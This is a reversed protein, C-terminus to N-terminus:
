WGYVLSSRAEDSNGKMAQEFITKIKYRDIIKVNEFAASIGRCDRPSFILSVVYPRRYKDQLFGFHDRVAKMFRIKKEDPISTDCDVLLLCENERYAIIDASGVEYGTEPIKLKEFRRGLPLISFGILSLLWSVANEFITNPKTRGEVCREPDLLRERFIELSCFANLATAFPEVPNELPVNLHTRDMDLTPVQRQILEVEISDHPRLNSLQISKTVYSIERTPPRKSKEVLETRRWIPEYRRTRPNVRELSLNLQLNKLSFDKKTKIKLSSGDLSVSAIRAPMPIGIVLGRPRGRSFDRTRLTESILQYIDKYGLLRAHGNQRDVIEWMSSEKEQDAQSGVLKWEKMERLYHPLYPDVRLEYPDIEAFKIPMRRIMIEGSKFREFVHPLMEFPFCGLLIRFNSTNKPLKDKVQQQESKTEEQLKCHLFMSTIVNIWDDKPKVAVVRLDVSKLSSSFAEVVDSITVVSM